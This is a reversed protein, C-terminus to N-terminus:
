ATEEVDDTDAHTPQKRRKGREVVVRVGKDAKRNGGGWPWFVFHWGALISEGRRPEPNRASINGMVGAAFMSVIMSSGGYSVFPLTLGKTPVLGMVVAMNIVAAWCEVVLSCSTARWSIAEVM